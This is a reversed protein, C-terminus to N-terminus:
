PVGPATESFPMEERIILDASCVPFALHVSLLYGLTAGAMTVTLMWKARLSLEPWSWTSPVEAADLTQHEWPRLM